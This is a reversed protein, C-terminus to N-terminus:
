LYLGRLSFEAELAGDGQALFRVRRACPVLLDDDSEPTRCALVGTEGIRAFLTRGDEYGVCLAGGAPLALGSFTMRSDGAALTVQSIPADGTNQVRAACLTTQATGPVCAFVEGGPVRVRTAEWDQWFPITEAIFAVKLPQTWCLASAITPQALVRVRLFQEPRYGLRLIKGTAWRQVLECVTSRRRVDREHIEFSITVQLSTRAARLLRQGDGSAPQATVARVQPAAESIDTVIIGPSLSSLLVGDLEAEYRTRM